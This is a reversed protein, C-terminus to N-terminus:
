ARIVLRKIDKKIERYLPDKHKFMLLIKALRKINLERVEQELRERYVTYM